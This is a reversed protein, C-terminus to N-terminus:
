EIPPLLIKVKELDDLYQKIVGFAREVQPDRVGARHFNEQLKITLNQLDELHAQTNEIGIKNSTKQLNM